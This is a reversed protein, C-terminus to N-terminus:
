RDGAASARWESQCRVSDAAFSAFKAPKGNVIHDEKLTQKPDFNRPVASDPSPAKAAKPSVAVEPWYGDGPCM